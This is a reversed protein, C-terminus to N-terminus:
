VTFGVVIWHPQLQQSAPTGFFLDEGAAIKAREEDNLRYRIIRAIVGDSFEVLCARVPMYQLQDEAIDFTDAGPLDPDISRM